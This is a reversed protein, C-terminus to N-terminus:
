LRKILSTTNNKLSTRRKKEVLFLVKNNGIFQFKINCGGFEGWNKGLEPSHYEDQIVVQKM